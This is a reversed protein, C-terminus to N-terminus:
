FRIRVGVGAAFGGADLEVTSGEAGDLTVQARSFRLRVGADLRDTIRYGVDGGVNFGVASKSAALIPVATVTVSDFPFSEEYEPVGVVDADVKFFFTAGGFVAYTLRGTGKEYVFDLHAAIERYSLGEASGEVERHRDFFFPHPFRATFDASGDRKLFSVSAEAGMSERFRYRLGVEGGIGLDYSHSADLTGTEVFQEFSASEDFKVKMPGVLGLLTM